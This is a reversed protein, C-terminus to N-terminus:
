VIISRVGIGATGIDMVVVLESSICQQWYTISMALIYRSGIHKMCAASVNMDAALVNIDIASINM